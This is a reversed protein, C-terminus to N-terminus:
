VRACSSTHISKRLDQTVNVVPWSFNATVNVNVGDMVALGQDQTVNVVPWSFNATVNVNVGDMVALGELCPPISITGAKCAEVGREGIYGGLEIPHGAYGPCAIRNSRPHVKSCDYRKGNVTM